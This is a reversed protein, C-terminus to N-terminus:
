RQKIKQTSIDNLKAIVESRKKERVEAQIERAAALIAKKDNKAIVEYQREPAVGTFTEAIPVSPIGSAEAQAVPLPINKPPRIKGENGEAVCKALTERQQEPTLRAMALATDKTIRKERRAEKAEPILNRALQKNEQLTRESMGVDKAIDATTQLPASSAGRGTFRNDGCKARLGLAELIEDRRLAFEGITIDDLENRMLNEDIEVLEFELGDGDFESCEIEDFGLEKYAEIRHEGAILNRNKDITIPHILGGIIKISEALAAVKDRDIKRRGEPITIDAIKIRM